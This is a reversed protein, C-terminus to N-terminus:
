LSTDFFGLLGEILASLVLATKQCNKVSLCIGAWGSHISPYKKHFCRAPAM